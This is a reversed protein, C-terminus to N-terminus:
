QSAASPEGDSDPESSSGSSRRSKSSSIPVPPPSDDKPTSPSSKKSSKASNGSTFPSYQGKNVVLNTVKAAVMQGGEAWPLYRDVNAATVPVDEGQDDVFNWGEIVGHRMLGMVVATELEAPDDNLAYAASAAIGAEASLKAALMVFDGEAHPTGACLCAGLDVRIPSPIDGRPM